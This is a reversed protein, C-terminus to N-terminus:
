IPNFFFYIEVAPAAMVVSPTVLLRTIMGGDHVYDEPDNLLILVGVLMWIILLYILISVM